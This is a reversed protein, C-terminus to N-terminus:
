PALDPSASSFSPTDVGRHVSGPRTKEIPPFRGGFIPHCLDDARDKTRRTPDPLDLLPAKPIFRGAKAEGAQEAQGSGAIQRASSMTM